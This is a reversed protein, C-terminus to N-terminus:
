RGPQRCSSDRGVTILELMPDEHFDTSLSDCFVAVSKKKSEKYENAWYECNEKQQKAKALKKDAKRYAELRKNKLFSESEDDIRGQQMRQELMKIAWDEISKKDKASLMNWRRNRESQAVKLQRASHVCDSFFMKCSRERGEDEEREPTPSLPTDNQEAAPQSGGPVPLDGGLVQALARGDAAPACDSREQSTGCTLITVSIAILNYRMIQGVM